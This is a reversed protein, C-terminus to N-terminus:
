MLFQYKYQKPVQSIIIRGDFSLSAFTFPDVSSWECCYISDEHQEFMQLLGDSLTREVGEEDAESSVSRACTLIVKNDSSSSLVLSDHFTNFRVSFIWHNHDSRAFVPQKVSRCDWIKLAGDDGGTVLHCQKNPNCDLDRVLQQGHAEEITWAVHNMDRTDFSKVAGEHLAIFQNANQQSWKGGTFKPGNKGNQVEAITTYASEARSMVKIKDDLVIALLNADSPNFETTKIESGDTELVQTDAFQLYENDPSVESGPLKLLATKMTVQSNQYESFVCSMLDSEHPSFRLQWIEGHPFAYVTTKYSVPSDENESLLEICHIQNNPKLSQTGIYFQVVDSNSSCLSRTQNDVGYIVSNAEDM